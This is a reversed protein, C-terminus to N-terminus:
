ETMGVVGCMVRAGAHGTTRSDEENGKGLDDPDAHVVVARGIISHPGILKVQLDEFSGEAEGAESATINGLDGAHREPDSPGGHDKRFPNYHPGASLCGNSLDGYAHIHFGHEGPTLGVFKYQIVTPNGEATQDFVVSGECAKGFLHAVARVM